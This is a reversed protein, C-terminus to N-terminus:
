YFFHMLFIRQFVLVAFFQLTKVSEVDTSNKLLEVSFTLSIMFESGTTNHLNSRM